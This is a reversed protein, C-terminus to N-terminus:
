AASAKDDGFEKNKEEAEEKTPPDHDIGEHIDILEDTTSEGDQMKPDRPMATGGLWKSTPMQIGTQKAVILFLSSNRDYKALKRVALISAPILIVRKRGEDV